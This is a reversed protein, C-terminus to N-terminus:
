LIMPAIWPVGRSPGLSTWAFGFLGLPELPALYLLIKLRSEPGVSDPDQRRKKRDRFFFPFYIVYAFFYSPSNTERYTTLLLDLSVRHCNSYFVM